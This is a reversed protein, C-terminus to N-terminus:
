HWLKNLLELVPGAELKGRLDLHVALCGPSHAFTFVAPVEDPRVRVVRIAPDRRALRELIPGTGDTSAVDLLILECRWAARPAQRLMGTLARVFGEVQSEQNQVLVMLSLVPLVAPRFLRRFLRESAGAANVLGYLALAWLLWTPFDSLWRM